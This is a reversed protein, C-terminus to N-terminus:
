KSSNSPHLRMWSVKSKINKMPLKWILGGRKKSLEIAKRVAEEGPTKNRDFFKAFLTSVEEKEESTWNHRQGMKRTKIVQRKKRPFALDDEDDDEIDDPIYDEDEPQEAPAPLPVPTSSDNTRDEQGEDENKMLEEIHIDQIRRGKYEKMKNHDLMLLVKAIDTRELIDSTARYHIKHIELSHGLHDVIWQQEQPTVNLGQIMTAM